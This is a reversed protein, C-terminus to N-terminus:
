EIDESELMIPTDEFCMYWNELNDINDYEDLYNFYGSDPIDDERMLEGLFELYGDFFDCVDKTNLNFRNEYDSYFLSNITVDARLQALEERTLLRKKPASVAHMKGSLKLTAM